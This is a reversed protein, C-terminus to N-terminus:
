ERADDDTDEVDEDIDEEGADAMTLKITFAGANQQIEDGAHLHIADTSERAIVDGWKITLQGDTPHETLLHTGGPTVFYQAEGERPVYVQPKQNM